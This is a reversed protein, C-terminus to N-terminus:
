GVPVPIFCEISTEVRFNSLLTHREAFFFDLTYEEGVELGFEDAVADMDITRTLPLHVGGLNIGLHGNVYTFLDDDGRFTFVEGGEYLFKTHIELTFHYNHDFDENGFGEDDAPFFARSDYVYNGDGDGELPIAIPLRVNTGDVDRFWENFNDENTTTQTGSSGGAYVPRDDDGLMPEVIDYDEGVEEREFDPHTMRFDRLVGILARNCDSGGEPDLGEGGGIGSGADLRIVSDDGGEEDDEEDEEADDNEDGDGASIGSGEDDVGSELGNQPPPEGGCAFLAGCCWVMWGKAAKSM